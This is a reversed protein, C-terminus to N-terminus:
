RVSNAWAIFQEPTDITVGSRRAVERGRANVLVLTPYGDVHFTERMLINQERIEQRQPKGRPFDLVVTELNERAYKRYAPKGFVEEELVICGGCWDSGTFNLLVLKDSDAAKALALKYADHEVTQVSFFLFYAAVAVGALLLYGKGSM